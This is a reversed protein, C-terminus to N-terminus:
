QLLKFKKRLVYIEKDALKLTPKLGVRQYKYINPKQSYDDVIKEFDPYYELIKTFTPIYQELDLNLNKKYEQSLRIEQHFILAANINCRDAAPEAKGVKIGGLSLLVLAVLKMGNIWIWNM